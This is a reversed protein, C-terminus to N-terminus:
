WWGSVFGGMGAEAQPELAADSFIPWNLANHAPVPETVITVIACGRSTSLFQIYQNAKDRAVGWLKYEAAPDDRDVLHWLAFLRFGRLGLAHRCHELLGLLSM